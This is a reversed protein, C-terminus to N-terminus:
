GVVAAVAKCKVYSDTLSDEFLFHSQGSKVAKKSFIM